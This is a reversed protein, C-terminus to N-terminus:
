KFQMCMKNSKNSKCPQLNNVHTLEKNYTNNNYDTEFNTVDVMYVNNSISSINYKLNHISNVNNINIQDLSSYQSGGSDNGFHVWNTNGSEQQSYVSFSMFLIFIIVLQRM